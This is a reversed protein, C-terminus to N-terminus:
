VLSKNQGIGLSVQERRRLETIVTWLYPAQASTLCNDARHRAGVARYDGDPCVATDKATSGSRKMDFREGYLVLDQDQKIAAFRSQIVAIKRLDYVILRIRSGFM